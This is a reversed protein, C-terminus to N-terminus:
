QTWQLIEVLEGEEIPSQRRESEVVGWYGEYVEDEQYGSNIWVAQRRKAYTHYKLLRDVGLGMIKRALIIMTLCSLAHDRNWDPFGLIDASFVRKYPRVKDLIQCVRRLTMDDNQDYNTVIESHSLLDLDFSLYSPTPTERLDRAAPLELGTQSSMVANNRWGRSQQLAQTFFNHYLPIRKGCINYGRSDQKPYADPGVMFPTGGFDHAIQDVFNACHLIPTLGQDDRKDWDDRHQDFHFYTWEGVNRRGLALRTLAYTWHHFCGDGYITLVRDSWIGPDYVERRFYNVLTSKSVDRKRERSLEPVFLSVVRGPFAAEFARKLLTTERTHLLVIRWNSMM